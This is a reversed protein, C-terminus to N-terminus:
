KEHKMPILMPGMYCPYTKYQKVGLVSVTEAWCYEAGKSNENKAQPVYWIIFDSDSVPEPISDIFKEPGQEYNTNCCQGLSPLDNDGEEKNKHHLSIYTYAFDQKGGDQFQGMSPQIGYTWQDSKIKYLLNEPALKSIEDHLFYTEFNIEDWDSKGWQYFSKNGGYFHIRFVPRYTGNSGCGRGLSAAGVRVRGDNYFEYKQEYNYNCPQPWLDSSYIQTLRLGVAQGNEIITDWEPIQIAGVVASSYYPCGVADSYGFKETPSYSVHWDVLKCSELIKKGQYKVDSIRLGDSSTLGYNFEWLDNKFQKDRICYCDYIYENQLNKETFNPAAITDNAGVETWRFGVIDIDTLDVIAWLAKGNYVITPAVCLHRSRECKSRALSTKTSAMIVDEETPRFGLIARVEPHHLVLEVALKEMRESIQPQLYKVHDILLIESLSVDVIALSTINENFNFMEVKYCNGTKCKGMLYPNMDSWNLRHVSTIECRDFEGYSTGLTYLNFVSDRFCLSQAKNARWDPSLLYRYPLKSNLISDINSLEKRRISNYHKFRPDINYKRSLLKQEQSLMISSFLLACNLLSIKIM